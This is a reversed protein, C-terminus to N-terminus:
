CNYSTNAYGYLYDWANAYGYAHTYAGTNLCGGAASANNACGFVIVSGGSTVGKACVGHLGNGLEIEINRWNNYTIGSEDYCKEYPASYCSWRHVYASAVPADFSLLGAVMLVGLVLGLTTRRLRRSINDNM